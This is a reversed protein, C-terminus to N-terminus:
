TGISDYVEVSRVVAPLDIWNNLGVESERLYILTGTAHDFYPRSLARLFVTLRQILCHLAWTSAVMRSGRVPTNTRTQSM